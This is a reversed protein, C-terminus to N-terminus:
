KSHKELFVIVREFAEQVAPSGAEEQDFVHNWSAQTVFEYAIGEAELAAVMREAAAFPVDTDAGGHLLMTPPFNSTVNLVPEYPEFWEAEALPDHGSVELPWTGQQRAYVYYDFRGDLQSGTPVCAKRSKRLAREAAEQTITAGQNHSTSPLTAWDGTLDGYGYFAVLAQPQPEVRFGTLLTLYGGASHGVVAVKGADINFLAPGEHILWAYAAEVDSVITELKHEPALRHDIGVVTHGAEIYLALQNMDLWDRGGTIMGGPHIWLIAPTLEEGPPVFVDAKLECDGDM